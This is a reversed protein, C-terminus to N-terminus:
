SVPDNNRPPTFRASNPCLKSQYTACGTWGDEHTYNTCCVRETTRIGAGFSNSGSRRPSSNRYQLQAVKQVKFMNFTSGASAVSPAFTVAPVLLVALTAITSFLRM